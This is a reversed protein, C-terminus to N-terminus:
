PTCNLIQFVYCLVIEIGGPLLHFIRFQFGLVDSLCLVAVYIPYVRLDQFNFHMPWGGRYLIIFAGSASVAFM